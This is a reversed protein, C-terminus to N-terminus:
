SIDRTTEGIDLLRQEEIAEAQLLHGSDDDMILNGGLQKTWGIANTGDGAGVSTEVKREKQRQQRGQQKQQSKKGAAGAADANTETETAEWRAKAQWEDEETWERPMVAFVLYSTHTKLDPEDRHVLRGEMFLTKRADDPKTNKVKNRSEASIHKTSSPNAGSSRADNYEKARQEIEKLRALAEDVDRAVTNVNRMGEYQYGTYERRVEIRKQHMEVMEIDVWGHRRLASVTRQAQEICPSFTCLHVSREADLPSPISAPADSLIPLRQRTLHPLAQWPAPLDLFIANASPSRLEATQSDKVLFGENYVDQPVIEVVGELGHEKIEERVKKYREDHFEYGFVRGLARQRRKWKAGEKERRETGEAEGDGEETPENVLQYGNFVARAAAHTFSGSGSGAEILRSGPRARIRHLVYSYDPTYLVQTRHFLSTTWNEPTPPLIHIFGSSATVAERQQQQQQQQQQKTEKVGQATSSLHAEQGNSGKEAEEQPEDRGNDDLRVSKRKEREPDADGDDELVRKRGSPRRRGRSGTDVM